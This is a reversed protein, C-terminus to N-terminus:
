VGAVTWIRHLRRDVQEAEDRREGGDVENLYVDALSDNLM